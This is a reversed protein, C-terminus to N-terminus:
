MYALACFHTKLAAKFTLLSDKSTVTVPLANWVTAAAHVFSCDGAATRSKNQVLTYSGESRLSRAPTYVQVCQQLYTPSLDAHLAKFTLEAIKYSVRYRVPLWHLERLLPMASDRRAQRTVLRAVSNQLRQLRNINSASTGFLLSNCYDLRSTILANVVRETTPRTLYRIIQSSNRMHFSCTSITRSVQTTMDLHRDLYVGLHKVHRVATVHDSGVRVRLGLTMDTKHRLIVPLIESKSDNMQLYNSTMWEKLEDICQEIRHVATSLSLADLPFHGFLQLDDAYQHYKLEHKRIIDGIPQVYLSFLIPALVSGQPVGSIM